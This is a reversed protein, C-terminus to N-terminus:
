GSEVVSRFAILEEFEPLRERLAARLVEPPATVEPGGHAGHRTVIYGDAQLVRLAERLTVRSVGLRRALEREPPLREGPSVTGLHIARKLRNTVVEYAAPVTLPALAAELSLPAEDSTIRTNM